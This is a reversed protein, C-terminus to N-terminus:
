PAKMARVVADHLSALPTPKTVVADAGLRLAQERLGPEAAGTFLLVASGPRKARAREVIELGESLRAPTFHLDCVVADFPADSEVLRLAEGAGLCSEVEWGKGEFYRRVVSVIAADDDLLLLRRKV